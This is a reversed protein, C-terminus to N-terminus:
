SLQSYCRGCRTARKSIRNVFAMQQHHSISTSTSTPEYCAAACYAGLCGAILRTDVQRQVKGKGRKERPVPTNDLHQPALLSEGEARWPHAVHAPALLAMCRLYACQVGIPKKYEYVAHRLFTSDHMLPYSRIILRAM